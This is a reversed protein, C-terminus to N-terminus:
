FKIAFNLGLYDGQFHDRAGYEHMWRFAVTANHKVFVTGVQVGYGSVRDHM